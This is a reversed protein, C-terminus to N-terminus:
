TYKQFVKILNYVAKNLFAIINIYFVFKHTVKAMYYLSSMVGQTDKSSSQKSKPARGTVNWRALVMQLLCTVSKARYAKDWFPFGLSKPINGDAKFDVVGLGMRSCGDTVDTILPFFNLVFNLLFSISSPIYWWLRITM